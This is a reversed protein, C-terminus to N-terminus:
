SGVVGASQVRAAVEGAGVLGRVGDGQKPLDERDALPGLSRVVGVGQVRAIVEGGGVLGCASARLGDSQVLLDESDTLPVL